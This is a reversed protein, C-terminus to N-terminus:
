RRGSLRNGLVILGVIFASTILLFVLIWAIEGPTIGM